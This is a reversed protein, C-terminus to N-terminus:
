NFFANKVKGFFDKSKEGSKDPAINPSKALEKLAAKEKPSLKTPVYVNVYVIHDGKQHSNLYPIGKGRLVKETGPQIGAEIKIKEEGFLTPVTAETGLAAEPYSLKLEYYVNNGRREFFDHEKEEVVVILDGPDGGRRGAHGKGRVPLYNGSEVGAPIQVDVTDEVPVRGEGECKDCPNKIIQGTGRCVNCTAINVFRGFLSSSVQRIEGTGGCTSCRQFDDTRKAGRGNCEDCVGLRKIKIKKEFGKAIDEMSLPIKIRLDSGREAQPRRSSRRRSGGGFFDDFISGGASGGFIDSFASFIDSIDDYSRFDQGRRLGEHGFRDYKERKQADSLVEYAESAEKFKEEAEKNDPNKDPHYMVALKRYSSKIEQITATRGVGLVEYYDRKAM